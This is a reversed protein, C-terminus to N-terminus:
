KRIFYEIASHVLIYHTLTQRCQGAYPNPYQLALSEYLDPLEKRIRQVLLRYSCSRAHKMLMTWEDISLQNCNTEYIMM